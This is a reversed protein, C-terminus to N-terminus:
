SFQEYTGRIGIAINIEPRFPLMCGVLVSNLTQHCCNIKKGHHVNAQSVLPRLKEHRLSGAQPTLGQLSWVGC